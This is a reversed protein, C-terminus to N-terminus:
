RFSAPSKLLCFLAICKVLTLLQKRGYYVVDQTHVLSTQIGVGSVPFSFIMTQEITNIFLGALFYKPNRHQDEGKELWWEYFHKFISFHLFIEFM